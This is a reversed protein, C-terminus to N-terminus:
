TRAQLAVCWSLSDRAKPTIAKDWTGQGDARVIARYASEDTTWGVHISKDLSVEKRMGITYQSLDCLLLDGLTGLAPVKETFLM